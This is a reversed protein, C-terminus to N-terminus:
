DATAADVTPSLAGTAVTVVKKAANMAADNTAYTQSVGVVKGNASKVVFYFRGDASESIQALPATRVAEIGNQANQKTTYGESQLVIAGNGARLHFYYQGDQYSQFLEYRASRPAEAIKINTILRAIRDRAREVNAKSSYTEGDAIIKNNGAAKLVFYYQGNTAMRTEYRDRKSGNTKVSDIGTQRAATSSYGESSLLIEGNGGKMNFYYQGDDGTFTHIRAKGSRLEDETPDEASEDSACGTGVIPYLALASLALLTHFRSAM